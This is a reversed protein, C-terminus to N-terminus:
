SPGNRDMLCKFHEDMEWPRRDKQEKQSHAPSPLNGFIGEQFIFPYPQYPTTDTVAEHGYANLHFIRSFSSNTDRFEADPPSKQEERDPIEAPLDLPPQSTSGSKGESSALFSVQQCSRLGQEPPSPPMLQRILPEMWGHEGDSLGRRQM